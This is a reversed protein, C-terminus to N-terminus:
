KVNEIRDKLFQTYACMSNLTYVFHDKIELYKNLHVHILYVKELM